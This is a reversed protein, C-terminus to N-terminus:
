GFTKLVRDHVYSVYSHEYKHGRLYDFAIMRIVITKRLLDEDEESIGEKFYAKKFGDWFGSSETEDLGTFPNRGGAKAEPSEFLSFYNSAVDYFPCGVSFEGMDILMLAEDTVIINNVHFDGHVYCNYEDLKDIVSLIKAKVEERAYTISLAAKRYISTSRPLEVDGVPATHLKLAVLATQEGMKYALSPDATITESVNRGRVLEYVIGKRNGASVINYSIATPAGAIFAARAREKEGLIFEEPYEDYYLKLINDEDLRFCEGTGGKAFPKLGEINIERIEQDGNM